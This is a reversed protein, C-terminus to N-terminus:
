GQLCIAVERRSAALKRESLGFINGGGVWVAGPDPPMFGILNKLLVSKGGGSRGIIVLTEGKAITLDVGRLIEQRGLKKALGRVEIMPSSNLTQSQSNLAPEVCAANSMEFSM